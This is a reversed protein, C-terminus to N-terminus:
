WRLCITFYGSYYSLLYLFYLFYYLICKSVTDPSRQFQEQIDRVVNGSRCLRLFIGLQEDMTLHCTDTLQALEQLEYKLHFFVEKKMGFSNYFRGDHGRLFEQMRMEGTFPSDYMPEKIVGPLTVVSGAAVAAMLGALKQKQQLSKAKSNNKSSTSSEEHGM